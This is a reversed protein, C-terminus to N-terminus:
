TWARKSITSSTSRGGPDAALRARELFERDYPRTSFITLNM